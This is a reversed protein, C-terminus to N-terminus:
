LWRRGPRPPLNDWTANARVKTNVHACDGTIVCVTTEVAVRLRLAVSGSVIGEGDHIIVEAETHPPLVNVSTEPFYTEPNFDVEIEM